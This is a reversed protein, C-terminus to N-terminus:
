RASVWATAALWFPAMAMFGITSLIIAMTTEAEMSRYRLSFMMANSGTPLAACMVMVMLPLGSMGAGWHGIVLVLAPMVVLKAVSIWIASGLTGKVASSALSMGIALLCVPVVAQGLMQLIDDVPTAIGLGLLNWLLGCVVPLVIPHIVTNRVTQVLTPWLRLGAGGATAHARAVDLEVLVTLVALLTLAHMSVITLHLSLGAEGFLAAAVPIGMQVTNGFSASIAWVSPAAASEPSISGVQKRADVRRRWIYVVVVFGIAVGFYAFLLEWPMTSFNIRAATRFLLPPAFVLFTVNSLVRGVDGEGLWRARGVIWGLGIVAVIALFKYFVASSM